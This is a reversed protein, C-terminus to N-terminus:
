HRCGIIAHKKVKIGAGQGTNNRADNWPWITLKRMPPSEFLANKGQEKM